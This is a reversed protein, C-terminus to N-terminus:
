VRELRDACRKLRSVSDLSKEVEVAKGDVGWSEDRERRSKM